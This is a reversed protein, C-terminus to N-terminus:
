RNFKEAQTKMKAQHAEMSFQKLEVHKSPAVSAVKGLRTMNYTRVVNIPSSSPMKVPKIASTRGATATGSWGKTLVISACRGYIDVGWQSVCAYTPDYTIGDQVALQVTLTQKDESVTVSFGNDLATAQEEDSVGILFYDYYYDFGTLPAIHEIDVPITVLDGEAIQLFWKPGFDNFCDNNTYASYHPDGFLDWASKYKSMSGLGTIDFGECLLRNQDRVKKDFKTSTAVYDNFLATVEDREMGEKMYTDYIEEPCTTPYPQKDNITVKTVVPTEELVWVQKKSEADYVKKKRQVTATWDGLLESFLTSTVPPAPPEPMTTMDAYGDKDLDPSSPTLEDNFGVVALRNKTDEWSDFSMNFGAASNIQDVDAVAIEVGYQAIMSSYTAGGNLEPLWQGVENCLYKAAVLDGNPAKINFWVKWPSEEQGEPATIGKVVVKPAPKTPEKAEFDFFDVSRLTREDNGVGCILMRYTIGQQLDVVKATVPVTELGMGGNVSWWTIASEESGLRSVISDWTAMDMWVFGYGQLAPDPTFELEITSTTNKLTKVTVYHEKDKMRDPAKSSTKVANHYETTWFKDFPPIGGTQFVSSFTGLPGVGGGGGSVSEKYGEWDFMAKWTERGSEDLDGEVVEGCILMLAQAPLLEESRYTITESETLVSVMEKAGELYEPDIHGFQEMMGLYTDLDQVAYAITKGAPVKIHFQISYYEPELITLLESFDKTQVKASLVEGYGAASKTAVFVMYETNNKLGSVTIINEGDVPTGKTGTGFIVTATPTTATLDSTVTYAYEQILNTTLTLKASTADAEGVTLKASPQDPQDVPGDNSCSSLGGGLVLCFLLM